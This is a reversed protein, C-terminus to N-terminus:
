GQVVLVDGVVEVREEPLRRIDGRCRSPTGGAPNREHGHAPTTTRAARRRGAAPSLGRAPPMGSWARADRGCGPTSRARDEATALVATASLGPCRSKPPAQQVPRNRDACLGCSHFPPALPRSHAGTLRLEQLLLPLRRRSQVALPQPRPRAPGLLPAVLDLSVPGSAAPHRRTPPAAATPPEHRGRVATTEIKSVGSLIAAPSAFRGPAGVSSQTRRFPRWWSLRRFSTPVPETLQRRPACPCGSQSDSSLWLSQMQHQNAVRAFTPYSAFSDSALGILVYTCRDQVPRFLDTGRAYVLTLLQLATKAAVTAITTVDAGLLWRVANGELPTIWTPYDFPKPETPM